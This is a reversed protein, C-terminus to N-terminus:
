VIKGKGKMHHIITDSEVVDSNYTNPFAKVVVEGTDLQVNLALQDNGFRETAYEWHDVFKKSSYSPNFIIVGANYKGQFKNFVSAGMNINNYIKQMEAKSRKAVGIDYDGSIDGLPSKIETDADLWIIQEDSFDIMAQKIVSPKWLSMSFRRGEILVKNYGKENFLEQEEKKIFDPMTFIKGSGLGGLDYVIVEYGFSKASDVMNDVINKFRANAATVIKM